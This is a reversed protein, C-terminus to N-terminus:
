FVFNVSQNIRYLVWPGARWSVVKYGKLKNLMFDAQIGASWRNFQIYVRQAMYIETKRKVSTSIGFSPAFLFRFSKYLLTFNVEPRFFVIDLSDNSNVGAYPSIAVYKGFIGLPLDYGVLMAPDSGGIGKRLTLHLKHLPELCIGVRPKWGTEQNHFGLELIGRARAAGISVTSLFVSLIIFVVFLKRRM